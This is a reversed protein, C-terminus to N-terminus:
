ISRRSYLCTPRCGYSNRLTILRVTHHLAYRYHVNSGNEMQPIEFFTLISYIMLRMWKGSNASEAASEPATSTINLVWAKSDDSFREFLFIHVCKSIKRKDEISSDCKCIKLQRGDKFNRTPIIDRANAPSPGKKLPGDLVSVQRWSELWFYIRFRACIPM